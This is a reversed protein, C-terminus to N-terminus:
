CFEIASARTIAEGALAPAIQMRAQLSRDVAQMLSESSFPKALYYIGNAPNEVAPNSYGSMLLVPLKASSTHLRAALAKGNKGPMTIDSIVLGISQRHDAFVVLAEEATAADLVRHGAIELVERTATRVFADDEVLLITDQHRVIKASSHYVPFRFDFNLCDHGSTLTLDVSRGLLNGAIMGIEELWSNEVTFGDHQGPRQRQFSFVVCCQTTDCHDEYYASVLMTDGTDACSRIALAARDIWERADRAVVVPPLYEPFLVSVVPAGVGALTGEMIEDFLERVQCIETESENM